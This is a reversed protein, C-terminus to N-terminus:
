VPGRFLFGPIQGSRTDTSYECLLSNEFTFMVGNSDIVTIGNVGYFCNTGKMLVVAHYKKKALLKVRTPFEIKVMKHKASKIDKTDKM